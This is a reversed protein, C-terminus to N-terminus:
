RGKENKKEDLCVCMAAIIAMDVNPAVAVQYTQADDFIQWVNFAERHIQAVVAGTAKETISANKGFFDGKMALEVVHGTGPETFSCVQRSGDVPV